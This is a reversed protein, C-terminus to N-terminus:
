EKKQEEWLRDLEKELAEKEQRKRKKYFTKWMKNAAKLTIPGKLVGDYLIGFPETKKATVCLVVDCKFAQRKETDMDTIVVEYM